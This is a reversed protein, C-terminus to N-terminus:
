AMWGMLIAALTASGALLWLAVGLVLPKVGVTKLTGVTLNAGILFLTLVLTRNAVTEVLHGIPQAAPIFTVIAAAIVFGLIFWPRKAKGKGAGSKDAFRYSAAVTLPVIWLARALKVTTGIQLAEAGYQLTAGVVSSTDHIALASWLGFQTQSLALWHGLPPFIVLAVANLTFVTGLALSISSSKARLTPAVAAIASGGCIATGVSILIGADRELKLVKALAFGTLLTLSIGVITYGIGHLGVHAVTILNMGAGLGIVSWQLLLNTYKATLPSYPNGFAVAIAIGALLAAFSPVWPTLCALAAVPMLVRAIKLRVESNM